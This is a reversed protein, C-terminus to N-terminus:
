ADRIAGALVAVMVWWSAIRQRLERYAEGPKLATLVTAVAGAVSLLTVVGALGILLVPPQAALFVRVTSVIDM